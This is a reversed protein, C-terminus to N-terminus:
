FQVQPVERAEPPAEFLPEDRFGFMGAVLVTPFVQIRTNYRTVSDNYSQRSLSVREETATLEQQLQLCNQNAKLDPYAESVALLRSLASSLEGEAKIRDAPLTVSTAKARAAIVAELTGKEHAAYGKVTNVINPILDHRRRLQVDIQAFANRVAQRLTVLGNYTGMLWLGVIVALLIIGGVVILLVLAASMNALRPRRGVKAVDEQNWIGAANTVPQSLILIPTRVLARKCERVGIIFGEFVCSQFRKLCRYVSNGLM